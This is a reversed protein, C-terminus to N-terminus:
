PTLAGQAGFVISLVQWDHHIVWPINCCVAGSFNTNPTNEILMGGKLTVVGDLPPVSAGAILPIIGQLIHDTCYVYM